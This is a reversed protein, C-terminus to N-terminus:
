KELTLALLHWRLRFGPGDSGLAMGGRWVMGTDEPGLIQDKRGSVVTRGRPTAGLAVVAQGEGLWLRAM